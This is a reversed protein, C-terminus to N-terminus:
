DPIAAGLAHLRDELTKIRARSRDADIHDYAAAASRALAELLTVESPALPAGGNERSGYFVFGFVNGRMILPVVIAPTQRGSPLSVDARQRGDLQLASFEARLEVILPDEADISEAERDNWGLSATREFVGNEGRALFLAASSLRLVRVPEDILFEILTKESSTNALARVARRLAEEGRRQDRFFVANLFDEIRGHVANLSVGILLAAFLSVYIAPRTDEFIQEAWWEIVGFLLVLCATVAAYLAARGIVFRLDVVRESLFGYIV